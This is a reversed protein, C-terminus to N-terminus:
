TLIPLVKPFSAYRNRSLKPLVSLISFSIAGEFGQRRYWLVSERLQKERHYM